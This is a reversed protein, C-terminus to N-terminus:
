DVKWVRFYIYVGKSVLKNLLGNNKKIFGEEDEDNYFHLNIDNLKELGLFSNPLKHHKTLTLNIRELEKLDGLFEPIIKIPNRQLDLVYLNTLQCIEEPIEEIENLFLLLAELAKMNSIEKPIVKIGCNGLDLSEVSSCKLFQKPICGLDVKGWAEIHKFNLWHLNEPFKFHKSESLKLVDKSLLQRIARTCVYGIGWFHYRLVGWYKYYWDQVQDDTLQSHALSFALEINEKTGTRCLNNLRDHIEQLQM